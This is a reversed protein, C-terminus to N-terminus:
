KLPYGEGLADIIPDILSNRKAIMRKILNLILTMVAMGAMLAIAVLAMMMTGSGALIIAVAAFIGAAAGCAIAPWHTTTAGKTYGIIEFGFKNLSRSALVALLMSIGSLAIAAYYAISGTTGFTSLAFIGSSGLMFILGVLLGTRILGVVNVATVFRRDCKEYKKFLNLVFNLIVAGAFAGFYLYFGTTMKADPLVLVPLLIFGACAFSARLNKMVRTISATKKRFCFITRFIAVILNLLILIPTLIIAVSLVLLVVWRGLFAVFSDAYVGDNALASSSVAEWISILANPATGISGFVSTVYGMPNGADYEAPNTTIVSGFSLLDQGDLVKDYYADAYPALSTVSFMPLLSGVLAVLMLVIALISQIRSIYVTRKAVMVEGNQYITNFYKKDNRIGIEVYRLRSKDKKKRKEFADYQEKRTEYSNALLSDPDRLAPAGNELAGGTTLLAQPAGEGTLAPVLSVPVGSIRSIKKARKLAEKEARDAMLFNKRQEKEKQDMVRADHASNARIRKVELRHERESINDTSSKQRRYLEDQKKQERLARKTDDTRVRLARSDELMQVTQLMRGNRIDAEQIKESDAARAKILRRDAALKKAYLKDARAKEETHLNIEDAQRRTANVEETRAIRANRMEARGLARTEKDRLSIKARSTKKQDAARRVILRKEAAIEKESLKEAERRRKMELAATDAQRRAEAAEETLNVRAARYEISGLRKNERARVSAKKAEARAIDSHRRKRVKKDAALQKAYMRNEFAKEEADKRIGDNGRATMKSEQRLLAKTARMRDSALRSAAKKEAAARKAYVRNDLTAEVVSKKIDDNGRATVKSEERLLAKTARMRDSALRSAAKKEAAARKAYVRNDLTAVAVDKKLSDNERNTIKGEERVLVKTVKKREASVRRAAKMEGALRLAQIREDAKARQKLRAKSASVRREYLRNEASKERVVGNEEDRRYKGAKKDETRLAKARARLAKAEARFEAERGAIATRETRLTEREQKKALSHEGAQRLDAVQGEFARVAIERKEDRAAHAAALSDINANARFNKRDTAVGLKANRKDEAIRMASLKDAAVSSRRSAKLEAVAVTRERRADSLRVSSEATRRRTASDGEARAVGTDAKAAIRALEKETAARQKEVAAQAADSLRRAAPSPTAEEAPAEATAAIEETLPPTAEAAQLAAVEEETLFNAAAEEAQAAEAIAEAEADRLSYGCKSCFKIGARMKTGCQACTVAKKM